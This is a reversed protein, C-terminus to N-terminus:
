KRVLQSRVSVVGGTQRALEIARSSERDSDVFGRLTVNKKYTDVNIDLASVLPDAIFAGKVSATIRQDELTELATRDEQAAIYGAEAGVGAVAAWCGTLSLCLVGGLLSGRIMRDKEQNTTWTQNRMYCM